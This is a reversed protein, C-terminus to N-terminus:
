KLYDEIVIALNGFIRKLDTAVFGIERLLEKAEEDSINAIEKQIFILNRLIDLLLQYTYGRLNENKYYALKQSRLLAMVVDIMESVINNLFEKPTPKVSM